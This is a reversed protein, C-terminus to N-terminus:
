DTKDESDEVDGDDEDDSREPLSDTLSPIEPGGLPKMKGTEKTPLPYDDSDVFDPIHPNITLETNSVGKTNENEFSEGKKDMVNETESNTNEGPKIFQQVPEYSSFFDDKENVGHHDSHEIILEEELQEKM